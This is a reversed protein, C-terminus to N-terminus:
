KHSKRVLTNQLIVSDLKDVFGMYLNYSHNADQKMIVEGTRRRKTPVLKPSHITSLFYVDKSDRVRLALLKNEKVIYNSEGRTMKKKEIFERPFSGRIYFLFYSRIFNHVITNIFLLFTFNGIGRCQAVHWLKKRM